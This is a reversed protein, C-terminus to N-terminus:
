SAQGAGRVAKSVFVGGIPLNHQKAQHYTLNTFVCDGAEFYANPALSHLDQVGIDFKLRMDGRAVEM